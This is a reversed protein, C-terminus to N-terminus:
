RGQHRHQLKRNTMPLLRVKSTDRVTKRINVCLTLFIVEKEWGVRTELQELNIFRGVVNQRPQTGLKCLSTEGVRSRYETFVDVSFVDMSFHDVFFVAVTFVDM